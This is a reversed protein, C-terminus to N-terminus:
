GVFPGQLTSHSWLLLLVKRLRLELFCPCNSNKGQVYLTFDHQDLGSDARCIYVGADDVRASEIVLLNGSRVANGPLNGNQLM